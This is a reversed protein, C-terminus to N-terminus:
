IMINVESLQLFKEKTMTGEPCVSMFSKYQARIVSESLESKAVLKEVKIICIFHPCFFM